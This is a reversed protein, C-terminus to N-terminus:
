LGIDIKLLYSAEKLVKEFHKSDANDWKESLGALKCLLKCEEMCDLWSNSKKITEAINKLDEM